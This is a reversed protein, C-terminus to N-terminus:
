ESSEQISTSPLVNSRDAKGAADRGEFIIMVRKNNDFVWNQLKILEVQLAKLENEYEVNRTIKALKKKNLLQTLGSKTKLLHINQELEKLISKSKKDDTSKKLYEIDEFITKM